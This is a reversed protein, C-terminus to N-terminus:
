APQQQTICHMGGGFWNISLPDIQVVRRTPFLQRFLAAVAADRNRQYAPMGAQWYRPVLVVGNSVFFNMYSSAPVDVVTEGKKFGAAMYLADNKTGRLVHKSWLLRLDPNPVRIVRFHRGQADTAAKLIRYNEDLIRSDIRNLPNANWEAAPIDALVITHPDVFRALEDLHGNAGRTFYNGVRPKVVWFDTLPSRKLWIMKRAGSLRLYEREITGLSMGPNRRRATDAIGMLVGAGNSDYGGGELVTRSAVVPVHLLRAIDNDAAGSALTPPSPPKAPDAGYLNWGFDAVVRGGDSRKLFFPGPDRLWFWRRSLLHFTVRTTDVGYGSLYRVARARAAADAAVLDVRVHPVLAKVVRASVDQSLPMPVGYQVPAEQWTMWVSGQLEWEAPFRYTTNSVVHRAPQAAGATAGYVALLGVVLALVRGVNFRAIQM